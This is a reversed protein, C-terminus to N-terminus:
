LRSIRRFSSGAAALSGASLRTSVRGANEKKREEKRKKGNARYCGVRTSLCGGEHVDAYTCAARINASEHWRGHRKVCAHWGLLVAAEKERVAGRIFM